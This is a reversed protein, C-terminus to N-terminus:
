APETPNHLIKDIFRDVCDKRQDADLLIYDSYPTDSLLMSENCKYCTINELSVYRVGKCKPCVYLKLM